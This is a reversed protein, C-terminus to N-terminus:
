EVSFRKFHAASLVTLMRSIYPGVLASSMDLAKSLNLYLLRIIFYLLSTPLICSIMM